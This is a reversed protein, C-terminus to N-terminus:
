ESLYKKEFCFRFSYSETGRRVEQSNSVRFLVAAFGNFVGDGSKASEVDEEVIGGLLKFIVVDEGKRGRLPFLGELQVDVREEVESFGSNGV